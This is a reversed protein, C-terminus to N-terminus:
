GITNPLLSRLKVDCKSVEHLSKLREIIHERSYTNRSLEDAITEILEQTTM